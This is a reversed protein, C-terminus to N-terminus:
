KELKKLPKTTNSKTMRQTPKVPGRQPGLPPGPPIPRNAMGESKNVFSYGIIYVYFVILGSLALYKCMKLQTPYKM